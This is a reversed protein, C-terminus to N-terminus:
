DKSIAHLAVYCVFSFFSIYMCISTFFSSALRYFVYAKPSYYHLFLVYQKLEDSYRHGCFKRNKNRLQNAFIAFDSDEFRNKLTMLSDKDILNAKQLTNFLETM